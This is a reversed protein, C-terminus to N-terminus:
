ITYNRVVGSGGILWIVTMGVPGMLQQFTKRQNM